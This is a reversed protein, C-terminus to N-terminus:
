EFQAHEHLFFVEPHSQAQKLKPKPQVVAAAAGQQVDNGEQQQQVRSSDVGSTMSAGLFHSSTLM